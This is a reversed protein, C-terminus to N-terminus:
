IFTISASRIFQFMFSQTPPYKSQEEKVLDIFKKLEM